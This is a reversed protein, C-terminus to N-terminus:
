AIGPMMRSLRREVQAELSTDETSQEINSNVLSTQNNLEDTSNNGTSKGINSDVLSAQNDLDDASNSRSSEGLRTAQVDLYRQMQEDTWYQCSVCRNTLNCTSKICYACEVHTDFTLITSIWERLFQM